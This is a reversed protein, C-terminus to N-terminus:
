YEIALVELKKSSRGEGDGINMKRFGSILQVRSSFDQLHELEQNYCEPGKLIQGLDIEKTSGVFEIYDFQKQFSKSHIKALNQRMGGVGKQDGVSGGGADEADCWSSQKSGGFM